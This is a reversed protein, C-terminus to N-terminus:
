RPETRSSSSRSQFSALFRGLVDFNGLCFKVAVDDGEVGESEEKRSKSQKPRFAGDFDEIDQRSCEAWNSRRGDIIARDSGLVHLNSCRQVLGDLQPYASLQDFQLAYCVASPNAGLSDAITDNIHEDSFSYGVIFFAVPKKHNAIFTKLQDLMVFYPMRRSETYKLHSPHIILEDGDESMSRIIMKKERVFRWNISGHLKCLLAWNAQMSDQEIARQSFFPQRSGVFGDFFPVQLSEFAQELLLDYNTTFIVSRNSREGIWLAFHHYPTPPAPLIQDVLTSITQCMQQELDALDQKSFGRVKDNGVVTAMARVRTLLHEITSSPEGDGILMEQLRKFSNAFPTDSAIDLIADTLGKAAPILPACGRDGVKIASACGAGLLFGIPLKVALVRRLADVTAAPKHPNTTM